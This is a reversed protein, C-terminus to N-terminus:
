RLCSSNQSPTDWKLILLNGQISHLHSTRKPLSPDLKTNPPMPTSKLLFPSTRGPLCPCSRSRPFKQTLRLSTSTRKDMWIQCEEQYTSYATNSPPLLL